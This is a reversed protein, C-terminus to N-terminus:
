MATKDATDPNLKLLFIHSRSNIAWIREQSDITLGLSVGFLGQPDRDGGLDYGYWQNEDVHYLFTQLRGDGPDHATGMVVLDNSPVFVAERFFHEDAAIMGDRGGPDLPSLVQTTMDYSWGQGLDDARGSFLLLRDRNADYVMTQQDPTTSPLTAGSVPLPDFQRTNPDLRWLGDRTWAAMGDPIPCLTDTYMNGGSVTEGRQQEFDHTVPDYFYIYPTKWLIMKGLAASFGYTKYSHGTMFPRGQFTWQGPGADNTYEYDLPIEPDYYIHFRNEAIDYELVDTGCHAVHGGSWRYIVDHVPDIAATGWDRNMNPRNPVDIETWQNEPVADLIAQHAAPDPPPWAEDYWEVSYPGSRREETGPTVGHTATGETDVVSPDIRIAWTECNEQDPAYGKKVHVVVLDGAGAAAAFTLNRMADMHPQDEDESFHKVLQWTNNGWDFLWIEWPKTVYHSAVYDTSSAYGFGGLLVMRRSTPLFLLRAGGRPSPATNPEVHTWTESDFDFFWTDSLLRDLRDGGFLLAKGQDPDTALAPVARPGPDAGTVKRWTHDSTQFIWTGPRGEDNIVNGGGALLIDGDSPDNTMASWVLPNSDPGGAPDSPPDFLTWTRDLLHYAFTHNWLYFVLSQQSPVYAYQGYTRINPYVGWNPRVNGESDQFAFREDDFGPAQSNGVEPGWDKDLPFRNKWTGEALALSEVDYPRDSVDHAIYGGVLVYEQTEPVYVMAPSIRPGVDGRSILVWENAPLDVGCPGDAEPICAGLCPQYGQDCAVGCAMKDCTPTGHELDPCPTCRDACHEVSDNSVCEGDCRHEGEGCPPAADENSNTADWGADIMEGDM